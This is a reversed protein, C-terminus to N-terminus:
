NYICTTDIGDTCERSNDAEAADPELLQATAGGSGAFPEAALPTVAIHVSTVGPM